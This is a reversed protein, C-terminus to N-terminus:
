ADEANDSPRRLNRYSPEAFTMGCSPAFFGYSANRPPNGVVFRRFRSFAEPKGVWWNRATAGHGTRIRNEEPGGYFFPPTAPLMRALPRKKGQPGVPSPPTPSADPNDMLRSAAIAVPCDSGDGGM